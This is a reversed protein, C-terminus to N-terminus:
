RCAIHPTCDAMAAPSSATAWCSFLTGESSACLEECQKSTLAGHCWQARHECAVSCVSGGDDLAVASLRYSHASPPASQGCGTDLKCGALLVLAVVVLARM